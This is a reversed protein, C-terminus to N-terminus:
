SGVEFTTQVLPLLTTTTSRGRYFGHQYISIKNKVLFFLEDSIIAEFVKGFVGLLSVGRYNEMLSKDGGKFIPIVNALKWETPFIGENLSKNYILYLPDLLSSACSKIFIVPINDPGCSKAVDLKQLQTSIQKKSIFNIFSNDLVDTTVSISSQPTNSVFVSPLFESFSDCIDQTTNIERGGYVMASPIRQSKNKNSVFSWVSKINSELNLETQAVYKKYDLDISKKLQKRLSSFHLYDDDNKYKKWKKHTRIKAGLLRKTASSFWLPYKKNILRTRINDRIIKDLERYFVTVMDNINLNLFKSNWDIASILSNIIEYNAQKFM